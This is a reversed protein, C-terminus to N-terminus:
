ESLAVDAGSMVINRVNSAPGGYSAWGFVALAVAWEM